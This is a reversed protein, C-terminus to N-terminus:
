DISKPKKFLPVTSCAEGFMITKALPKLKKILESYSDLPIEKKSCGKIVVSMNNFKDSELQKIKNDIICKILFDKSGILHSLCNSTLKLSILLYAWAPIIANSSCQVAVHGEKFKSWDFKELDNRFDKEILFLGETLWNKIDLEYIKSNPFFDELDITILKSNAVRNVIGNSSM